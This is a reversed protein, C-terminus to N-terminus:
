PQSIQKGSTLGHENDPLDDLPLAHRKDIFM